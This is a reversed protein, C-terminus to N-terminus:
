AEKREHQSLEKSDKHLDLVPLLSSKNPVHDVTRTTALPDTLKMFPSNMATGLSDRKNKLISQTEISNAADQAIPSKPNYFTQSKDAKLNLQSPLQSSNKSQM